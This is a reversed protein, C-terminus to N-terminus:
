GIIKRALSANVLEGADYQDGTTVRVIKTGRMTNTQQLRDFKTPLASYIYAVIFKEEAHLLSGICIAKLAFM